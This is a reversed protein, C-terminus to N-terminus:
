GGILVRDFGAGIFIERIRDMEADSPPDFTRARGGLREIKDSGVRHYPLLHVPHAGVAGYAWHALARMDAEDANAGPVVPIRLRIDAGSKALRILNDLILPNDVGTLHLHKEPDLAKLDYLFIDALPLIREFHAWPAFGCTDVAVRVGRKKFRTMLETLFDMDQAMVEGGSLTVGGGTTDYLREDRLAAEYLAEATYPTGVMMRADFACAECRLREDGGPPAADDCRGCRVCREAYFMVEPNFARSEPNHCWLCNLPCGKFFITTRVGPGDHLSFRQVNVVLASHPM